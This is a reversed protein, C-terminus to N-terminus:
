RAFSPWSTTTTSRWASAPSSVLKALPASMVGLVESEQAAGPVGCFIRFHSPRSSAGSSSRGLAKGPM